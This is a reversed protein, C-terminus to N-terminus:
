HWTPPPDIPAEIPKTHPIPDPGHSISESVSGEEDGPKPRVEFDPM